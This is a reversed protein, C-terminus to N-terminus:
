LARSNARDITARELDAVATLRKFPRGFLRNLGELFAIALRGKRDYRALPLVARFRRRVWLSRNASQATVGVHDM